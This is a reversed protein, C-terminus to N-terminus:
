GPRGPVRASVRVSQPQNPPLTVKRPAYFIMDQAIKEDASAEIVESLAGNPMMRRLEVSVRYTATEPGINKIIVESGRSGNLVLRTPAVLLDGVGAIASGPLAFAAAAFAAAALALARVLVRNFTM